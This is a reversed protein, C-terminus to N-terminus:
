DEASLVGKLVTRRRPRTGPAFRCEGGAVPKPAFPPSTTASARRAPHSIHPRGEVKLERRGREFNVSRADSIPAAKRGGHPSDSPARTGREGYAAGDRNVLRTGGSPSPHIFTKAQFVVVENAAERM